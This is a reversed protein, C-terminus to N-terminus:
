KKIGMASYYLDEPHALQLGANNAYIEIENLFKTFQDTNIESTGIIRNEKYEGPANWYKDLIVTNMKDFTRMGLHRKQFEYKLDEPTCDLGHEQRLFNSLATLWLWMLNNQALSRNKKYTEATVKIPKPPHECRYRRTGQVDIYEEAKDCHPEELDFIEPVLTLTDLYTKCRDRIGNDRLIFVKKDM